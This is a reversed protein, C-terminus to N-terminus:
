SSAAHPIAASWCGHMFYYGILLALGALGILVSLNDEFFWQRKMEDTPEAIFGKPWSVVITLGEYPGLTKTTTFTPRVEGDVFAEFSKGLSGEVGTYGDLLIAQRQIGAPLTVVATAHDIPFSWGNGTANWYLEDHDAFFGLQRTTRYALTYSYDGPQLEVDEDGLYIRKGNGESEVDHAEPKGDRLTELVESGVTYHNGLRDRYRTPFDRYIGHKIQVAAAKVKITERVTMSGDRSIAIETRFDLIRETDAEEPFAEKQAPSPLAPWTLLFCFLVVPHFRRTMFISGPSELCESTYVFRSGADLPGYPGPLRGAPHLPLTDSLM